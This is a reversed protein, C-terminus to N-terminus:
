RRWTGPGWGNERQQDERSRKGNSRDIAAQLQQTVVAAETNDHNGGRLAGYVAFKVLLNAM